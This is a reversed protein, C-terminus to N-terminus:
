QKYTELAEYIEGGPQLQTSLYASWDNTKNIMATIASNMQDQIMGTNEMISTGYRKYVYEQNTLLANTANNYQEQNFQM